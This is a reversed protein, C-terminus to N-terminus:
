LPTLTETGFISFMLINEIKPVHVLKKKVSSKRKEEKRSFVHQFSVTNVFCLKVFM